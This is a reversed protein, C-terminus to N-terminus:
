RPPNPQRAQEWDSNILESIKIKYVSLLVGKVPSCGTAHGRGVCPLVFVSSICVPM